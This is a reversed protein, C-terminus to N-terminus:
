NHYNFINININEILQQVMLSNLKKEEKKKYIELANIKKSLRGNRNTV